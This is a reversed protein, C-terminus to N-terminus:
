RNRYRKRTIPNEDIMFRLSKSMEIQETVMTKLQTVTDKLEKLQIDKASSAM